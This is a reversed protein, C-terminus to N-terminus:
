RGFGPRMLSEISRRSQEAAVIRQRKEFEAEAAKAREARAAEERRKDAQSKRRTVTAREKISLPAADGSRAVGVIKEALRRAITITNDTMCDFVKIAQGSDNSHRYVRRANTKKEADYDRWFDLTELHTCLRKAHNNM